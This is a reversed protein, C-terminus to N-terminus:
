RDLIHMLKSYIMRLLGFYILGDIILLYIDYLGSFTDNSRVFAKLDFSGAPIIVVDM